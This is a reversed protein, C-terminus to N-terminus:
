KVRQNSHLTLHCGVQNDLPTLLHEARNDPSTHQRVGSPNLHTRNDQLLTHGLNKQLELM